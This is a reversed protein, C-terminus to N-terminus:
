LFNVMTDPTDAEGDDVEHDAMGTRADARQNLTGFRKCRSAHISQLFGAVLIFPPLVSEEAGPGTPPLGGQTGPGENCGRGKARLYVNRQQGQGDEDDDDDDDGGENDDDDFHDGDHSSHDANNLHTVQQVGGGDDNGDDDDDNSDDDGKRGAGLGRSCSKNEDDNDNNDDDVNNDDDNFYEFWEDCVNAPPNITTGLWNSIRGKACTGGLLMVTLEFDDCHTASKIVAIMAGLFHNRPEDWRQCSVLVHSITEPIDLNCFPCKNLFTLPILGAGAMFRSCLYANARGQALLTTGPTWQPWGPALKIYGRTFIYGHRVYLRLSIPSTARNALRQLKRLFLWTAVVRGLQDPPLHHSEEKGLRLLEADLEQGNSLFWRHMKYTWTQSYPKNKVKGRISSKILDAMFTASNAWKKIARVCAGLALSHMDPIGFELM